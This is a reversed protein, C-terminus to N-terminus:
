LKEESYLSGIRPHARGSDSVVVAIVIEDDMPADTIRVEFSMHHSRIKPDMKNKIALDLSAGAPGRKEASPLLSKANDCIKRFPNGFTLTHIIGSGHEIEGHLGVLAGKGYAEVESGTIGLADIAKQPLLRGLKDSYTDILPQLNSVYEGAFPNKIVAMSAAIRVPKSIEKFGEIYTEDIITVIKRIEDKM